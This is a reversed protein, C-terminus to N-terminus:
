GGLFAVEINDFVGVFVAGAPALVGHSFGGGFAVDVNNFVGMFVAAGPVASGNSGRAGGCWVWRRRMHFADEVGVGIACGKAGHGAVDNGFQHSKAIGKVDKPGFWFFGDVSGTVHGPNRVVEPGVWSGDSPLGEEFVAEARGAAV